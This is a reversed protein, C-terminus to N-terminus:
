KWLRIQGSDQMKKILIVTVPVLFMGMVGLVQLGFYMCFLTVLPHLGIQQGVIKPEIVNRIITILGYATAIKFALMWDGLIAAIVAWPILVTGCGLIPLIDVLAIVGALIIAYDVQVWFTLLLSLEGFTILMIILYARLVRLITSVFTEKITTVLAQRRKPIQRRIFDVVKRYDMSLFFTAIITVLLSILFSPLRTVGHGLWSLMAGCLSILQSQLSAAAEELMSALEQASQPSLASTLGSFADEIGKTISPVASQIMEPLRKLLSGLEAYVQYGALLLGSVLLVMTISVLLVAAMRRSLRTRQSMWVIPRQLVFAVGFGIVFPMIWFFLYKIALFAAAILLAFYAANILFARRKEVKQLQLPIRREANPPGM